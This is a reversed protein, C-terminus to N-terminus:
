RMTQMGIPTDRVFRSSPVRRRRRHLPSAEAVVFNRLLKRVM